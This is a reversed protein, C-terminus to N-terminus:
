YSDDNVVSFIFAAENMENKMGKTKIFSAVFTIMMM